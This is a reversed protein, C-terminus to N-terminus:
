FSSPRISPLLRVSLVSRPSRGQPSFARDPGHSIPHKLPLLCFKRPRWSLTSSVRFSKEIKVLGNEKTKQGNQYQSYIAAYRISKRRCAEFSTNLSIVLVEKMIEEYYCVIQYLKHCNKVHKGVPM